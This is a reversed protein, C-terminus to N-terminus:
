LNSEHRVRVQQGLTEWTHLSVCAFGQIGVCLLHGQTRQVYHLVNVICTLIGVKGVNGNLGFHPCFMHTNIYSQSTFTSLHGDTYM